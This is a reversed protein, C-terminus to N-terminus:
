EKVRIRFFGSKKSLDIPANFQVAGDDSNAEAATSWASFGDFSKEL